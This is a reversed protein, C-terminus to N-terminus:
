PGYQIVRGDATTVSLPADEVFVLPRYNEGVVPKLLPVLKGPEDGMIKNIPVTRLRRDYCYQRAHVQLRRLNNYIALEETRARVRDYYPKIMAVSMGVFIPNFMGATVLDAKLSKHWISRFLIGDPSNSRMAILPGPTAKFGTLFKRMGNLEESRSNSNLEVIRAWQEGVRGSLWNLSNGQGGLEGFARMFEPNDALTQMRGLCELIFAQSSGILLTDGDVIVAPTWTSVVPQGVIAYHRRGDRISLELTPIQDLLPLAAKGIGDISVVASLGPIKVPADLDVFATTEPQLVVVVTIRIRSASVLAMMTEGFDRLDSEVQRHILSGELEGFLRQGVIAITQFLAGPDLETEYFYDTDPPALKLGEFPGPAGDFARLLGRRGRPTHIYVRNDYFEDDRRVSSLGVAAIDTMGLDEALPALDPDILSSLPDDHSALEQARALADALLAADGDVDVYGYLVGGPQLHRNVTEM